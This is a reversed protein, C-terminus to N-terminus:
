LKRPNEYDNDNNNSAGLSGLFDSVKDVMGRPGLIALFSGGLMATVSGIWLFIETKSWKLIVWEGGDIVGVRMASGFWVLLVVGLMGICYLVIGLYLLLTRNHRHDAIRDANKALRDKFFNHPKSGAPLAALITADSEAAREWRMLPNIWRLLATTGALILGGIIAIGLDETNM